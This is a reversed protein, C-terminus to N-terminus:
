PPFTPAWPSPEQFGGVLWDLQILEPNPWLGQSPVPDIQHENKYCGSSQNHPFPNFFVGSDEVHVCECLCM